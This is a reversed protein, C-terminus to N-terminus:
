RSIAARRSVQHCQSQLQLPPLLAAMVVVICLHHHCCCCRRRCADLAVHSRIRCRREALPQRCLPFATSALRSTLILMECSRCQPMVAVVAPAINYRQRYSLAVLAPPPLRSLLLRLLSPTAAVIAAAPLCRSLLPYHSASLPVLATPTLLPNCCHCLRHHQQTSPPRRIIRRTLRRPLLCHLSLPRHHCCCDVLNPLM